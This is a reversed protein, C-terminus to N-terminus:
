SIEELLSAKRFCSEFTLIMGPVIRARSTSVNGISPIPPQVPDVVSGVAVVVGGGVVASPVSSGVTAPTSAVRNYELLHADQWPVLRWPPTAGASVSTLLKLVENKLEKKLTWKVPTPM